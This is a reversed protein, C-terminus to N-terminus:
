PATLAKSISFHFTSGKGPESEVWIKGAHKEVFEKCIILGLGSGKEGDTGNIHYNDEIHFLRKIDTGSIGIGSDSVSIITQSVDQKYTIKITDGSNSYKIANSILNRLISHLMNKDAFVGIPHVEQSILIGKNEANNSLLSIVDKIVDELMFSEPSIKLTSTQSRAWELLNDLLVYNQHASDHISIIIQEMQEEDYENRNEKLLNILGLLANFPSRLDHAIISFFKDKTANLEQLHKESKELAINAQRKVRYFYFFMVIIILFLLLIGILFNRLKTEHSLSLENILNEQELQKIKEEGAEIEYLAELQLMNRTTKSSYISDAISVEQSKFTYAKDYNGLIYYVQALYKNAAMIHILQNNNLSIDLGVELSDIARQYEKQETFILGFLNYVISFGLVDNISKKIELSTDLYTLAIDYNGFLYEIRALNKLSNSIGFQSKGQRHMELAQQNYKRAIEKNNLEINVAALEDLCIAVGTMIGDKAALERYLRLSELYATKAEEYLGVTYYLRGTIYSVWAIGETFGAKKYNEHAKFIFELAKEYSSNIRFINFIASYVSGLTRYNNSISSYYISQNYYNLTQTQDGTNLLCITGIFFYLEGLQKTNNVDKSIIISRFFYDMATDHSTKYYYILGLYYLAQAELEHDQINIAEQLATSAHESAATFDSKRLHYALELRAESKEIGHADDIVTQLSDTKNAAISFSIALLFVILITFHRKM